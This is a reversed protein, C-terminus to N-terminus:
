RYGAAAEFHEEGVLFTVSEGDWGCSFVALGGVDGGEDGVEDFVSHLVWTLLEEDEVVLHIDRGQRRQHLWIWCETRLGGREDSWVRRALVLSL